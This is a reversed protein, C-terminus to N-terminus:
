KKRRVATVTVPTSKLGKSIAEITIKGEEGTSQIMALCLGAFANQQKSTYPTKSRPNGNCTGIIKGPGTVKFKVLNDALPHFNGNEDLIEVKVHVVDDKDATIETKDVSIKISDPTGATVRKTSAVERGCKYAKAEITGPVYEVIWEVKMVEPDMKKRGLSKGNLFLEVEDANSYAWVPIKKGEMVGEWSWHPLLHVMPKDSWQSQYFYYGDKPFGCVDIVGHNSSINAGCEGIYDFGTWRFEGIVYPLSRTRRWSERMNVYGYSNDYESGRQKTHPFIEKRTLNPIIHVRKINEEAKSPDVLARQIKTRTKYVGRTAFTHPVESGWIIRDPYTVKDEEYMNWSGGGSNYGVIDFVESVGSENAKKINNNGCSVPRTPDLQHMYDVLKKAIKLGEPKGKEKIENGVSWIIIAPSNRDRMVMNKLDERWWKDFNIHYDYDRKGVQWCDFAEEVLLIGMENALKIQNKSTINHSTRIANCGMEKLIKMRRKLVALPVATGVPGADHHNCVGKLKISKGNLFLGKQNDFVVSRVGFETTVEDIVKGGQLIKSVLIYLAPNEPSWRDPSPIICTQEVTTRSEANVHDIITKAGPITKGGPNIISNKIVVHNAKDKSDNRLTTKIVLEAKESTVSKQIIWVGWHDIHLSNTVTIFVDRYIGSGTYWRSNPQNSNDAKVALVNSGTKLYKSIDYYFPVYGNPRKGLFHGNIWVESNEWVGDFDIYVTKNQWSDPVNFKKRYLGIGGRFYSISQLRQDKLDRKQSISFDHPLRIKTWDSANFSPKEFGEIDGLHFCWNDNFTTHIRSNMGENKAFTTFTTLLGLVVLAIIRLTNKRLIDNKINLQRNQM